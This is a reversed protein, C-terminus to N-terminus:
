IQRGEDLGLAKAWEDTWSIRGKCMGILMAFTDLRDFTDRDVKWTSSLASGLWGTGGPIVRHWRLREFLVSGEQGESKRPKAIFRFRNGRTTTCLDVMDVITEEQIGESIKLKGWVEVMQKIFRERAQTAEDNHARGISHRKRTTM